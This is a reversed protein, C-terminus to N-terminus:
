AIGSHGGEKKEDIKYTKFLYILRKRTKPDNIPVMMGMKTKKAKVFLSNELTDGIEQELGQQTEKEDDIDYHFPDDTDGYM